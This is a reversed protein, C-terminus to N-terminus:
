QPADVLMRGFAADLLWDLVIRCRQAVSPMKTVYIARWMAWAPFGSFRRGYIMAVGAHRGIVAVEGIPEFTFPRAAEGGMAAVINRAVLEGERTANQATPAYTGDGRPKPVEACDGIAWVGAHHKVACAHDVAIGGHGGRECDLTEVLPNPRVGGAWIFSATEIRGGPDLTVGNADASTIKTNLHINVGHQQLKERAYGALDPSLEDLLRDGPHVLETRIDGAAINKYAQCSSRVLDNIAGMTEVGTFGGGGIVFTLLRRRASADEELNAAELCRLVHNRIGVADAVTKMPLSHDGVGRIGHDNAISGLAIVLHDARLTKERGSEVACYVVTKAALDIRHIEGQAFAIRDSLRHLPATIHRGDLEGGAIETLMPTFLLFNNRDVLTITGGDPNPLLRALTRAVMTGGFGAGVIVIHDARVGRSAARRTAASAATYAVAGGIGAGALAAATRLRM